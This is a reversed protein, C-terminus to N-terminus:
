DRALEPLNQDYPQGVRVRPNKTIGYDEEIYKALNATVRHNEATGEVGSCGTIAALCAVPLIMTITSASIATAPDVSNIRQKTM